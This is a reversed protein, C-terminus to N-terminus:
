SIMMVMMSLMSTEPGTGNRRATQSLAARKPAAGSRSSNSVRSTQSSFSAMSATRSDKRMRLRRRRGLRSRLEGVLALAQEPAEDVHEVALGFSEVAGGVLQRRRHAVELALLVAGLDLGALQLQDGGPRLVQVVPAVGELGHAVRGGVCVTGLGAAGPTRAPSGVGRLGALQGGGGDVGAVEDAGALVALCLRVQGLAGQDGDGSAPVDGVGAATITRSSFVRALYSSMIRTCPPPGPTSLIAALQASRLPTWWITQLGSQSRWPRAAGNRRM